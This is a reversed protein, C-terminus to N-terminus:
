DSGPVVRRRKARWPACRHLIIQRLYRHIRFPLGRQHLGQLAQDEDVGRGPEVGRDLLAQWVAQARRRSLDLNHESTGEESTHGQVLIRLLEPHSLLTQAVEDLM